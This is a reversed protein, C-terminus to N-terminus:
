IAHKRGRFCPMEMVDVVVVEECAFYSCQMCPLQSKKRHWRVRRTRGVGCMSIRQYKERHSLVPMGTAVRGPAQCQVTLAPLPRGSTLIRHSPSTSIKRAVETMKHCCTFKDSCIRRFNAAEIETHCCKASGDRLYVLLTASVNLLWCVVVRHTQFLGWRVSQGAYCHVEKERSTLPM